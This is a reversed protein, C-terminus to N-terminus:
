ALLFGFAGFAAAFCAVGAVVLRQAVNESPCDAPPNLSHCLKAATISAAVTSDVKVRCPNPTPTLSSSAVVVCTDNGPWNVEPRVSMTTDTVNVAVGFEGPCTGNNATAAVLDVARGDNDINFYIIDGTGNSILGRGYPEPHEDCSQWDLTWTLRWQSQTTFNNFFTYAFYPEHSTVSTWNTKWTLDHEYRAVDGFGANLRELDYVISPNLHRALDVNQFAFVVPMSDTPTYTVGPRPFVLSVELIGAADVIAGLCALSAVLSWLAQFSLHM